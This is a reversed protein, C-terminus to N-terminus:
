RQDARGDLGERDSTTRGSVKETPPPGATARGLITVPGKGMGPPRVPGAFGARTITSPGHPACRRYPRTPPAGSRPARTLGPRVNQTRTAAVSAPRTAPPTHTRSASGATVAGRGTALGPEALGVPDVVAVGAAAVPAARCARSVAGGLAGADRDAAGLADAVTVLVACAARAPRDDAGVVGVAEEVEGVGAVDAVSPSLVVALGALEGPGVSEGAGDPEAGGAPQGRPPIV